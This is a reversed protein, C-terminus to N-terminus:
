KKGRFSDIFVMDFSLGIMWIFLATNLHVNDEHYYLPMTGTELYLNIWKLKPHFNFRIGGYYNILLHNNIFILDISNVAKLLFFSTIIFSTDFVISLEGTFVLSTNKNFFIFSSNYLGGGIGLKLHFWDFPEYYGSFLMRLSNWSGETNNVINQSEFTMYTDEIDFSFTLKNIKIGASILGKLVSSNM